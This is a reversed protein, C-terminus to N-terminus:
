QSIKCMILCILMWEISRFLINGICYLVFTDNEHSSTELVSHTTHVRIFLLQLLGYASVLFGGGLGTLTCMGLDDQMGTTFYAFACGYVIYFLCAASARIVVASAQNDLPRWIVAIHRLHWALFLIKVYLYDAAVSVLVFLIYRQAPTIM